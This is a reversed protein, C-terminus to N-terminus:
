NNKTSNQKMLRAALGMNRPEEYSSTNVSNNSTSQNNSLLSVVTNNSSFGNNADQQNRNPSSPSSTNAPYSFNFGQTAYRAIMSAATTPSLTAGNNGSAHPDEGPSYTASLKLNGGAGGGRISKTSQLKSMGLGRVITGGGQSGVMYSPSRNLTGNGGGETEQMKALEYQKEFEIRMM